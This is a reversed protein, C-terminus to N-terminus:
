DGILSQQNKKIYRRAIENANNVNEEHSYGNFMNKTSARPTAGPTTYGSRGATAMESGILYIQTLHDRTSRNNMPDKVQYNASSEMFGDLWAKTDSDANEYAQEYQKKAQNYEQISSGRKLKQVQAM